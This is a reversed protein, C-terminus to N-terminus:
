VPPQIENVASSLTEPLGFRAFLTPDAFRVISAIDGGRIALVMVAHARFEGEDGGRMYAAVAPQRNARMPVLRFRDLRGGGPVTKLFAGIANRGAYRDPLPPMTFVADESLVAVISPVDAAHWAAVLRQVLANEDSSGIEGHERTIRGALRERKLTTRARQLASNSGAESTALIVATEAASYDLVDRPLLTARQKPPLMQVSAIFALQVSEDREFNMEPGPTAPDLEDLLHDPYPDLRVAEGEKGIAGIRSSAATKGWRGRRALMSLCLNTAIRYLWARFPARPAFSDLQRWARLLTDQLADDADELSGLMRYCHVHLERQRPRTLAEFADESGARAADLLRSESPLANQSNSQLTM